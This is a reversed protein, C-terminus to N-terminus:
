LPYKPAPAPTMVRPRSSIVTSGRMARAFASLFMSMPAAETMDAIAKTARLGTSQRATIGSLAPISAPLM